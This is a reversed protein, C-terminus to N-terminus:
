NFIYDIGSIIDNREVASEQAENQAGITDMPQPVDYFQPILVPPGDNPVDNRNDNVMRNFGESRKTQNGNEFAEDDRFDYIDYMQENQPQLVPAEMLSVSNDESRFSRVSNNSVNGDSRRRSEVSSMERQKNPINPTKVVFPNSPLTEFEEIDSNWDSSDDSDRNSARRFPKKNKNNNTQLAREQERSLSINPRSLRSEASLRSKLQPNGDAVYKNRIIHTQGKSLGSTSANQNVANKRPRGRKRKLPTETKNNNNNTNRNNFNTQKSLIPPITKMQHSKQHSRQHSVNNTSKTGKRENSNIGSSSPRCPNDITDYSLKRIRQDNSGRRDNPGNNSSFRKDKMQDGSKELSHSINRSTSQVPTQVPTQIVSQNIQNLKRLCNDILLQVKPICDNTYYKELRNELQNATLKHESKLHPKLFTQNFHSENCVVSQGDITEIFKCIIPQYNFHHNVHILQLNKSESRLESLEFDKQRCKICEYLSIDEGIIHTKSSFM